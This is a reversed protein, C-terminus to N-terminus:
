DSEQVEESVLTIRARLHVMSLATEKDLNIGKKRGELLASGQGRFTPRFYQMQMNRYHAFKTDAVEEIVCWQQNHFIGDM